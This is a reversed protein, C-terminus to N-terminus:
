IDLNVKAIGSGDAAYIWLQTPRRELIAQDVRFLILSGGIPSQGATSSALPIQGKPSLPESRYAYVNEAPLPYPLATTGQNDVLAFKSAAQIVRPNKNDGKDTRNEVRIFAGFWAYKENAVKGAADPIGSLYDRDEVDYPNLKRSLQVQYKLGGVTVYVSETKSSTVPDQGTGCGAFPVALALSLLALAPRLRRM